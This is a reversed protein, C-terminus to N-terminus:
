TSHYKLVHRKLNDKRGFSKTCHVCKYKTGDEHHAENIHRNLNYKRDFKKNCKECSLKGGEQCHKTHGALTDARNFTKHCKVCKYDSRKEEHVSEIHRNLVWLTIFEKSCQPCCYSEKQNKSDLSHFNFIHDELIERRLFRKGCQECKYPKTFQSLFHLNVPSEMHVETLHRTLSDIRSFSKKCHHCQTHNKWSSNHVSKIHRKLSAESCLQIDCINCIYKNPHDEHKRKHHKLAEQSAFSESCHTCQFPKGHESHETKEHQKRNSPAQFVRYCISCTKNDEARILEAEKGISQKVSDSRLLRLAETCFKCQFHLVHHHVEHDLLDIHCQSCNRPIGAYKVFLREPNNDGSCNFLYNFLDDDVYEETLSEGYFPITFSDIESFTRELDCFHETCQQDCTSCPHENCYKSCNEEKSTCLLCPCQIQCKGFNCPYLIRKSSLETAPGLLESTVPSVNFKPDMRDLTEEVNVTWTGCSQSSSHTFTVFFLFSQESDSSLQRGCLIKHEWGGSPFMSISGIYPGSYRPYPHLRALDIIAERKKNGFSQRMKKILEEQKTFRNTSSIENKVKGFKLMQIKYLSQSSCDRGEFEM